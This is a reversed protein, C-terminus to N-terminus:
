TIKLHFNVSLSTGFFFLCLFHLFFESPVLTNLSPWQCFSLLSFYKLNRLHLFIQSYSDAPSHHSLQRILASAAGLPLFGLLCETVGLYCQFKCFREMHM